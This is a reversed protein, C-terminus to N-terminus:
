DALEDFHKAKAVADAFRQEQTRREGALLRNVDEQTFTRGADQGTATGAAQLGSAAPDAPQGTPQQTNTTGESM